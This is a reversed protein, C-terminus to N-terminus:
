AKSGKPLASMYPTLDMHNTKLNVREQHIIKMIYELNKYDLTKEYAMLLKTVESHLEKSHVGLNACIRKARSSFLNGLFGGILPVKRLVQNVVGTSLVKSVSPPVISGVAKKALNMGENKLTAVLAKKADKAVTRINGSNSGSSNMLAVTRDADSSYVTGVSNVLSDAYDPIMEYHFVGELELFDTSSSGAFIIFPCLETDAMNALTCSGYAHYNAANKLMSVSATSIFENYAGPKWNLQIGSKMEEYTHVQTNPAELLNSLSLHINNQIDAIRLFGSYFENAASDARGGFKGRIGGAVTRVSDSDNSITTVAYDNFGANWTVALIDAASDITIYKTVGSVTESPFCIVGGYYSTTAVTGQKGLIQSKVAGKVTVSGALNSDPIRPGEECDFPNDLAYQYAAANIKMEKDSESMPSFVANGLVGRKKKVRNKKVSLNSTPM